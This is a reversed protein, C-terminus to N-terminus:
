ILSWTRVRSSYFTLREDSVMVFLNIMVFSMILLYILFFSVVLWQMSPDEIMM